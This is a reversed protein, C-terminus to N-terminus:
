KKIANAKFIKGKFKLFKETADQEFKRDRIKPFKAEQYATLAENFSDVEESNARDLIQAKYLVTFRSEEIQEQKRMSAM